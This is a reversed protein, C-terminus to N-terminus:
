WVAVSRELCFSCVDWERRVLGGGYRGFGAERGAPFDAVGVGLIEGVVEVGGGLFGAPLGGGACVWGEDLGVHGCVVGLGEGDIRWVIAFGLRFALDAGRMEEDLMPVAPPRAAPLLLLDRPSLILRYIYQLPVLLPDFISTLCQPIDGGALAIARTRPLLPIQSNEGERSALHAGANGM